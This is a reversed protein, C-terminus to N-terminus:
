EKKSLSAARKAWNDITKQKAKINKSEDIGDRVVNPIHIDPTFGVLIRLLDFASVITVSVNIKKAAEVLDDLKKQDGIFTGNSGTVFMLSDVHEALVKSISKSLDSVDYQKDKLELCCFVKDQVFIDIDEVERDSDGSENSPHAVVKIQNNPEFHKKLATFVCLVLSEGECSVGLVESYFRLLTSRENEEKAMKSVENTIEDLSAEKKSSSEALCHLSFKLLEYSNTSSPINTLFSIMKAVSNKEDKSKFAVQKDLSPIRAPKNLFPENSNGLLYNVTPNKVVVKHCLSRADFAGNLPSKAQIVIPNVKPNTAKALLETVFIYRYTLGIESLFFKSKAQEDATLDFDDRESYAKALIQSATTLDVEANAM